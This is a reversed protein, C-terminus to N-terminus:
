RPKKKKPRACDIAEITGDLAVTYLAIKTAGALTVAMTPGDKGSGQAGYTVKLEPAAADFDRELWTGSLIWRNARHELVVQAYPTVDSCDKPGTSLILDDGHLVASALELKKGAVTVTAASVHKEKPIGANMTPQDGCAEAAFAGQMELSDGALKALEIDVRKGTDTSGVISAAGTTTALQHGGTWVETVMITDGGDPTIWRRLALAISTAGPQASAVGSLLEECSGDKDSLSIRWQDPSVRKIFARTMALPKGGLTVKLGSFGTTPPKTQVTPAPASGSGSGSGAGQEPEGKGCAAALLIAITLTRM